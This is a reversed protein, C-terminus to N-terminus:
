PLYRAIVTTGAPPASDDLFSLQRSAEDFTWNGVQEVEGGDELTFVKLTQPQPAQDLTFSALLRTVTADVILEIVEGWDADCIHLLEGGSANAADIYQQGVNAVCGRNQLGVVSHMMIDQPLGRATLDSRFTSWGMNSEDDTVIIFQLLAGPRLLELFSEGGNGCGNHCGLIREFANHSGIPQNIHRFRNNNSCFPGALPEPICVDPDNRNTGRESVMTFTYDVDSAALNTALSAINNEVQTVTDDMSGSNDVVMVFDTAREDTEEGVVFTEEVYDGCDDNIGNCDLDLDDNCSEETPAVM